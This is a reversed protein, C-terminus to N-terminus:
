LTCLMYTHVHVQRLVTLEQRYTDVQERLDAIRDESQQQQEQVLSARLGVNELEGELRRVEDRKAAEVASIRAQLAAESEERAVLQLQLMRQAAKSTLRELHETVLQQAAHSDARIHADLIARRAREKAEQFGKQGAWNEYEGRELALEIPSVYKELLTHLQEKSMAENQAHLNELEKALLAELSDLAHARMDEQLTGTAKKFDKRAREVAERHWVLLENDPLPLTERLEQQQALYKAHLSMVHKRCEAQCVNTWTDEVDPVSGTNVAHVWSQALEVLMSGSVLGSRIKKPDASTMVKSRLDQMQMVFKPRLVEDSCSSLSQLMSEDEVPRVLPYCDRQQFFGKIAARIRNKNAAKESVGPAELLANELYERSTIRKGNENVLQLSFDRVIWMFKPFFQAFSTGDEEKSTSTRIYKTMEVVLSLTDIASESITGVSNYLFLSSTLLALAFIICDHKTGAETSNLGETDIILLNVPTGDSAIARVPESWIWLGKTCANVTSGVVFGDNQGLLIRNLLFSKGTRYQGVVSIISLPGDLASIM